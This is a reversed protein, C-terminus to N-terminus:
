PGAAPKTEAAKVQLHKFGAQKCLETLKAAAAYSLRSDVRLLVRDAKGALLRLAALMEEDSADFKLSKVPTNDPARIDITQMQGADKGEAVATIEIIVQAAEAVTNEGALERLLAEVSGSWETLAKDRQSRRILRDHQSVAAGARDDTAVIQDLAAWQLRTGQMKELLLGFRIREAPDLKALGDVLDRSAAQVVQSWERHAEEFRPPIKNEAAKLAESEIKLRIAMIAALHKRALSALPSPAEVNRKSGVAKLEALAANLAEIRAQLAAKEARLQEALARTAVEAERARDREQRAQKMAAEARAREQEVQQQAKALQVRDQAAQEQANKSDSVAKDARAIEILLRQRLQDADDTQRTAEESDRRQGVSTPVSATGAWAGLAQYSVFSTGAGLVGLTICAAAILKVKTLFMTHLVGETLALLPAPVAAATAAGGAYALATRVATDILAHPVAAFLEQATLTVLLGASLTVGRRQLRGRLLERARSLRTAITGRPCGLQEAAESNTKGQLYCLVFPTRYRAPLRDVEADLIPALEGWALEGKPLVALREVGNQPPSKKLRERARLASRFAVKYLWSALAERKGISGAKRVLALFTAQFADEADQLQPLLRRCVGLVLAGHRWVLLEFAAEDRHRVFRDLLEADTLRGVKADGAWRRL